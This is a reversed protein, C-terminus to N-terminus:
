NEIGLCTYTLDRIPAHISGFRDHWGRLHTAYFISLDNDTDILVYAGAAGDWGFEGFPSRQGGDKNVLTRVGLGYGYGPGAACGFAANPILKTLQETKMMQITEPKLVRYGEPSLGNHAMAAAFKAYDEVTSLLGAGGSEYRPHLGFEYMNKHVETSKSSGKYIYLPPLGETTDLTTLFGTRTMGLPEFIAKKQYEGFPMDSVAEIVAGLIDHCLSYNYRSGPEFALPSAIVAKAFETTPVRGKGSTLLERIPDTDMDYTLGATMTFLHRVTIPTKPARRIGNETLYADHFSPLYTSVPADLDLKGEEVLRMAGTATLPKSCSYMYYLENGSTPIKQETDSYGYQARFLTKHNQQIIVDFGPIDPNSNLHQSLHTDLRDFNM